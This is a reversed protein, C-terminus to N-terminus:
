WMFWASSSIFPPPTDKESYYCEAGLSGPAWSIGSRTCRDKQICSPWRTLRLASMSHCCCMSVIGVTFESKVRGGDGAWCINYWDLRARGAQWDLDLGEKERRRCTQCKWPTPIGSSGLQGACITLSLLLKISPCTKNCAHSAAQSLAQSWCSAYGALMQALLQSTIRRSATQWRGKARQAYRATTRASRTVSRM